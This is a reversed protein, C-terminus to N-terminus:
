PPPQPTMSASPSPSRDNTLLTCDPHHELRFSGSDTPITTAGKPMMKGQHPCWQPDDQGHLVAIEPHFDLGKQVHSSPAMPTKGKKFCYRSVRRPRYCHHHDAPPTAHHMAAITTRKTRTPLSTCLPRPHTAELQRAQHLPSKPKPQASM